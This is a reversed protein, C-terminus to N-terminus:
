EFRPKKTLSLYLWDPTVRSCIVTVSTTSREFVSLSIGAVPTTHAIWGGRHLARKLGFGLLRARLLSRYCDIASTTLFSLFYICIWNSSDAQVWNIFFKLIAFLGDDHLGVLDSFL